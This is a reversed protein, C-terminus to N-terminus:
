DKIDDAKTKYPDKDKFEECLLNLDQLVQPVIISVHRLTQLKEIAKNEDDYDNSSDDDGDDKYKVWKKSIITIVEQFAALEYWESM